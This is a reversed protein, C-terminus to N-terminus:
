LTLQIESYMCYLNMLHLAPYHSTMLIVAVPILSYLFVMRGIIYENLLSVTHFIFLMASLPYSLIINTKRRTRREMARAACLLKSSFTPLYFTIIISWELRDYNHYKLFYLFNFLLFPCKELRLCFSHNISLKCHM